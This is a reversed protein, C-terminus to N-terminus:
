DFMYKFFDRFIIKKYEVVSLPLTIHSVPVKQFTTYRDTQERSPELEDKKKFKASCNNITMIYPYTLNEAFDFIYNKLQFKAM